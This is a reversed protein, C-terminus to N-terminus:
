QSEVPTVYLASPGAASGIASVSLGQGQGTAIAYIKSQGPILMFSNAGSPTGDAPFTITPTAAVGNVPLQAVVVCVAVNGTGYNTFEAFNVQDNINGPNIAVAAHQSNTVSLVYCQGVSRQVISVSM